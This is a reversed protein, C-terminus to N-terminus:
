MGIEKAIEALQGHFQVKGLELYESMKDIEELSTNPPCLTSFPRWVECTEMEAAMEGKKCLYQYSISFINFHQSIRESLSYFHNTNTFDDVFVMMNYKLYLPSTPDEQKTTINYAIGYTMEKWFEENTPLYAWKKEKGHLLHEFFAKHPALTSIEIGDVPVEIIIELINKPLKHETNRVYKFLKYLKPSYDKM